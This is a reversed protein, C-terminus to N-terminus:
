NEPKIGEITIQIFETQDDMQGGAHVRVVVDPQDLYAKLINFNNHFIGKKYTMRFSQKRNKLRKEKQFLTEKKIEKNM